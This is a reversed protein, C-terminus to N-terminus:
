IVPSILGNNSGLISVVDGPSEMLTLMHGCYVCITCVYLIVRHKASNCESDESILCVNGQTSDQFIPLSSYM